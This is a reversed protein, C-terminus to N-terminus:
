VAKFITGPSCKQQQNPRHSYRREVNKWHPRFSKYLGVLTRYADM